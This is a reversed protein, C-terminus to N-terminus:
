KFIINAGDEEGVIAIDAIDLFLGTEVVGSMLKLKHNLEKPNVIKNVHLDIIYNNEDTAFFNNDKCRISPNLNLAKLQSLVQRYSFPVIIKILRYFKHKFIGHPSLSVWFSMFM